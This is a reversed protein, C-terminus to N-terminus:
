VLSLIHFNSNYNLIRNFYFGRMLPSISYQQFLEKKEGSHKNVFRLKPNKETETEERDLFLELVAAARRAKQWVKKVM